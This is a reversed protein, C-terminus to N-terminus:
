RDIDIYISLYISIGEVWEVRGSGERRQRLKEGDRIEIEREGGGRERESERESKLV